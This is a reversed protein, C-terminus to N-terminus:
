SEAETVTPDTLRAALYDAFDPGGPGTYEEILRQVGEAGEPRPPDETLAQYVAGAIRLASFRGEHELSRVKRALRLENAKILERIADNSPRQGFNTRLARATEVAEKATTEAAAVKEREAALGARAEREAEVAAKLATELLEVSPAATGRAPAARHAPLAATIKHTPIPGVTVEDTDSTCTIWTLDRKTTITLADSEVDSLEANSIPAGPVAHPLRHVDIHHVYGHGCHCPEDDIARSAETSM